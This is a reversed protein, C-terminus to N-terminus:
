RGTGTSALSSKKGPGRLLSDAEAPVPRLSQMGYQSMLKRHSSELQATLMQWILDRREAEIDQERESRYQFM